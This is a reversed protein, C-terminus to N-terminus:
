GRIRKIIADGFGSCSLLQAEKMQRHLDYTVTGAQITEALSKEILAAAESWGMHELMMVASLLLSGPNAKDLGAHKPATGHTAEFVATGTEYNINAGPAIGLGGVEAACADSLYDGNLNPTAIVDYEDPRLLLQQFMQDAIRDNVLILSGLRPGHSQELEALIKAVENEKVGVGDEALKAAIEKAVLKPNKRRAELVSRETETITAALFEDRAVEYGWRMFGGETYKMINGKHVLTVSRRKHDVAYQLAARVLRKSGRISMPKVGIASDDPVSKGMERLFAIVKAAEPTGQAWEIGAYVDETNERFVVVDLKGPEKIPAPVGTYWRSPRVCAYLDLLLRLSVNLSRFGGGVPTTLPGKISVKCAHIREVTEPPLYAEQRQKDPLKMADDLTLGAHELADDGAYVRQWRIRKKGGYAKEVAADVVKIMVPTIDRGVGDGQIYPITPEAPVKLRGDKMEITDLHERESARGSTPYSAERRSYM